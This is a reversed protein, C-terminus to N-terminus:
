WRADLHKKENVAIATGGGLKASAASAASRAVALDAERCLVLASNVGLRKYGQIILSELLAGYTQSQSVAHLRAKAEERLKQLYEDRAVYKRQRQSGM